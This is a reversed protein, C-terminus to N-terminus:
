VRGGLLRLSLTKTHDPIGKLLSTDVIFQEDDDVYRIKTLNFIPYQKIIVVEQNILYLTSGSHHFLTGDNNDISM